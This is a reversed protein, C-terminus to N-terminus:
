GNNQDGPPCIPPCFSQAMKGRRMCYIGGLAGVAAGFEYGTFIPIQHGYIVLGGLVLKLIAAVYGFIFSTLTVSKRKSVPDIFWMRM